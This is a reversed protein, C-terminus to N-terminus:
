RSRPAPAHRSLADRDTEGAALHHLHPDRLRLQLLEPLPELVRVPPTVELGLVAGDGEVQTLNDENAVGCCRLADAEARPSAGCARRRPPARPPHPPARTASSGMRRGRCGASRPPPAGDM